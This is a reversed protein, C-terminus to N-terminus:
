ASGNNSQLLSALKNSRTFMILGFALEVVPPYWLSTSVVLTSQAGFIWEIKGVFEVSGSVIFFLGLLQVAQPYTIAVVNESSDDTPKSLHPVVRGTRFILISGGVIHVLAYLLSSSVHLMPSASELGLAAEYSLPATVILSVGKVLLLVGVAKIAADVIQSHKM